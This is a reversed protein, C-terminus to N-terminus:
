PKSRVIRLAANLEAGLILIVATMYLWILLVIVAGLTGYIVSYNAFNEVYFSFGISVAMWSILAAMIGPLIEKRPQRTDLAAAYLTGLAVFMLLGVPVFRLYQWINLLYESIQLTNGSLMDKIHSLVHEGMTSLLLTLGIVVILMITYILQRIVYTVPNHPKDLHYALRVDDMLGKVARMPFWISFVLAFWMLTHSSTHSVYDLYSEVLEVIDKPLFQQLAQTIATVNLDLLGLLNSIFILLPFLAFLLYYALSAANRGVNHSFFNAVLLRLTPRFVSAKTKQQQRTQDNIVVFIEKSRLIAASAEVAM